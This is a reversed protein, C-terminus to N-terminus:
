PHAATDGVLRRESSPLNCLPPWQIGLGPLLSQRDHGHPWCSKPERLEGRPGLIGSVKARNSKFDRRDDSRKSFLAPSCLGLLAVATKLIKSSTGNVISEGNGEEKSSRVLDENGNVKGKRVLTITIGSDGGQPSVSLEFSGRSDCVKPALDISPLHPYPTISTFTWTASQVVKLKSHEPCCSLIEDVGRPM